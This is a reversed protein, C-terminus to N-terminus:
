QLDGKKVKLNDVREKKVSNVFNFGWADQKGKHFFNDQKRYPKFWIREWIWTDEIRLM